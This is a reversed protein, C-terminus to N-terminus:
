SCAFFFAPGFGNIALLFASCMLYESGLLRTTVSWTFEKTKRQGTPDIAPLRDSLRQRGLKNPVFCRHMYASTMNIKEFFFNYEALVLLYQHQKEKGLQRLKQKNTAVNFFLM